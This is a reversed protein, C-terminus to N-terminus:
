QSAKARRADITHIWKVAVAAVQVLEARTADEDDMTAIVECVEEVMIDALTCEGRRAMEQCTWKARPESPVEYREAM